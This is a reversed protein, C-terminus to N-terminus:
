NLKRIVASLTTEPYSQILSSVLIFIEHRGGLGFSHKLEGSEIVYPM